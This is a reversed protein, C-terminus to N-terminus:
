FPSLLPAIQEGLARSLWLIAHLTHVSDHTILQIEIGHHRWWISSNEANSARQSPFGGTAPPNGEGFGRVHFKSIKKSRPRFLRDLLCNPRRHNLVGDLDNHHWQLTQSAFAQRYVDFWVDCFIHIATFLQHYFATLIHTFIYEYVNLRCSNRTVYIIVHSPRM